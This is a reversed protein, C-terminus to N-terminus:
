GRIERADADSDITTWKSFDGPVGAVSSEGAFSFGRFHDQVSGSLPPSSRGTRSRRSNRISLPGPQWPTSKSGRPGAAARDLWAESPDHEDFDVDSPVEKDLDAETFEPDFNAVSESTDANDADVFPKFPPTVQRAALLEWDITKFFPHEKLEAADRQAGLRHKPNRNLLQLGFCNSTLYLERVNQRSSRIRAGGQRVAERRRRDCREPVQDKRFLHEQVDTSHGRRLIAVM